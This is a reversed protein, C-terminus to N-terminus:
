SLQERSSERIPTRKHPKSDETCLLEYFMSRDVVAEATHINSSDNNTAQIFQNRGATMFKSHTVSAPAIFFITM